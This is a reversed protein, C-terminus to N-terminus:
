CSYAAACDKLVGMEDTRQINAIPSYVLQTGASNGGWLIGYLKVDGSLPSNTIKFVPSGSDGAGVTANVVDQCLDVLNTGYVGVDVCTYSVRGQSMGTTRGIKTVLDGVLAASEAVVRFKSTSLTISGSGTTRGIVGQAPTVGTIRIFASDSYRCIRGTLYSPCRSSTAQPDVTEQGIYTDEAQLPQWYSTSQVGGMKATCHSNTLFGVVNARIATFGYTCLYGPFNIQIGGILPRIQSRLTAMPKFVDTALIQVADAPVGIANLENLVDQASSLSALGVTIRNKTEDVDTFVVNGLKFLSRMSIQWTKLSSFKYSAQHVHVSSGPIRTEGFVQSIVKVVADKTSLDQLYIELSGNELYMGGFGPVQTAIQGMLDDASLGGQASQSQLENDWQSYEESSQVPAFNLSCGGLAAGILLVVGLGLLRRSM